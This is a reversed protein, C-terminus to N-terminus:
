IMGLVWEAVESPKIGGMCFFEPCKEGLCELRAPCDVEPLFTRIEGTGLPGWRRPHHAPVPSYIGALAPVGLAAALHLPGTSPAAVASARSLLGIFDELGLGVVVKVRGTHIGEEAASEALDEEPETGTVVVNLGAERALLGTLERWREIPWNLASGGMGPHIVVLKNAPDAFINATLEAARELAAEDAVVVPPPIKQQIDIGLKTLLDINYAAEHKEGRSRKQRVPRNFFLPAYLKVLPGIRLPIGASRVLLANKRSHVFVVAADYGRARIEAAIERFGARDHAGSDTLISDICPNGRVVPEAYASCLLDIRAAPLAERLVRFSPTTLVLDGLRDNRVLLVRGINKGSGPM